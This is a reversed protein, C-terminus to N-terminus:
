STSEYSPHAVPRGREGGGAWESVLQGLQGETPLLTASPLPFLPFGRHFCHRQGPSAGHGRAQAYKWSVRSRMTCLPDTLQVRGSGKVGGVARPTQCHKRRPSSRSGLRQDGPTDKACEGASGELLCSDVRGHPQSQRERM